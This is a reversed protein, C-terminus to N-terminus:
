YLKVLTIKRIGSKIPTVMHVEKSDFMIGQGKKPYIEKDILKLIGGEFDEDYTSSYFLITLYPLKPTNFFLYKKDGIPIFKELNFIPPKNRTIIQCDDIHWNLGKKDIIKHIIIANKTQEKSIGLKLEIFKKIEEDTEEGNIVFDFTFEVRKEELSYEKNIQKGVTFLFPINSM